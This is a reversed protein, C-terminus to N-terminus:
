KKALVAIWPRSPHHIAKVKSFGAKRLEAQIEEATYCRMGDIIKEFKKGVADLGDCENAILFIGGPRLARAVQGFCKTLGPWFYITEFATALDFADADQDLSSVDGLVIRCRGAEISKQNYERAKRVSLASYDVATLQAAPYRHLLEGANRGGGCGLDIIQDTKIRPIYQMGWDALGAHSRNMGFLMVKGLFGDPRRTQRFFKRLLGM